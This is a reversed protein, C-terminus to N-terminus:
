TVLYLIGNSLDSIHNLLLHLGLISGQPVDLIIKIFNFFTM